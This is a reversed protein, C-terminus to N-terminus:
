SSSRGASTQGARLRRVLRGGARGVLVVTAPVMAAGFLWRWPEPGYVFLAGVAAGLPACVIAARVRAWRNITEALDQSPPDAAHAHGRRGAQTAELCGYCVDGKGCVCGDPPELQEGALARAALDRTWRESGGARNDILEGKREYWIGALERGLAGASAVWIFANGDDIQVADVSAVVQCHEAAVAYHRDVDRYVRHGAPLRLGDCACPEPQELAELRYREAGLSGDERLDRFIDGVRVISFVVAEAWDPGGARGVDTTQGM